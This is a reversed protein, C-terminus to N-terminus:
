LLLMSGDSLRPLWASFSSGLECDTRSFLIQPLEFGMRLHLRRYHFDRLRHFSGFRRDPLLRLCDANTKTMTSPPQGAASSEDL